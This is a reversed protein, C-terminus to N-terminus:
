RNKLYLAVSALLLLLWASPEPVAKIDSSTLPAGSLPSINVRSGATITLTGVAINAATLQTTGSGNGVVLGGTGSISGSFDSSTNGDITLTGSGLLVSSGAVGSLSNITQSIGNLDLTAGSATINVDTTSPLLGLGGYNLSGFNADPGADHLIELIGSSLAGNWFRVENYNASATDDPWFSRGLNDTTDLLDALTINKTFSGKASGLNTSGSPASYWTVATSSDVPNLEMVIHYETSTSYQNTNDSKTENGNDNWGVRDTGSTNGITWSMFLNEYQDTGFDFIRGWNRTSRQTAWLEITIPSNADPLLNSGLQIYDSSNKAGGTLYAQGPVSTLSVNNSGVDVITANSSGVSDNLNNNFSWRHAVIPAPISGLKLTGAAITTPGSYTNAAGFTLIGAGTKTLGGAVSASTLAQPITINYSNTDIVAGGSEVDVTNLGQMFTTSSSRAKLTGGNFHFAATDGSGNVSNTSIIGGDLHVAGNGVAVSGSTNFTGDSICFVGTAANSIGGISLNAANVTGNSQYVEGHSSHTDGVKINGTVTLATSSGSVNLTGASTQGIRLTALSNSPSSTLNVTHGNQIIATHSVGPISGGLWNGATNFDLTGTNGDFEIEGTNNPANAILYDAKARPVTFVTGHRAGTPFSVSSTFDTWTARDDTSIEACIKGSTYRDYYTLWNDGIKIVTPGEADPEAPTTINYLSSTPYPGLVSPANQTQYLNKGSDREDKAVLYYNSGDKVITGDITSFGPDYLLSPESFTDYNTTTARYIRLGSAASTVESSWYVIYQNNAADWYNEPAWVQSTTPVSSMINVQKKDTWTLLDDSEMYGFNTVYWATTYTMHFKGDQGYIISPDRMFPTSQTDQVIGIDGNVAHYSLGDLSYALHLGNAGNTGADQFYSFLYVDDVAAAFEVFVALCLLVVLTILLLLPKRSLRLTFSKRRM